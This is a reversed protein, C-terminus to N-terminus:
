ATQASPLIRTECAIVANFDACLHPRPACQDAYQRYYQPRRHLCDAGAARLLGSETMEEGHLGKTIAAAPHVNVIATDRATASSSNWWRWM